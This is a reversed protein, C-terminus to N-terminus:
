CDFDLHRIIERARDLVKKAEPFSMRERARQYPLWAYDRLEEAQIRVQQKEGVRGLFYTVKKDVMRGDPDIFRYREIIPAEMWIKLPRLGTEEQLERKAAMLETENEEAHGKPFAWHGKQHHIVLYFVENERCVFPIIGFSQDKIM